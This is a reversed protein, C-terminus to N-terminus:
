MKALRKLNSFRKWRYHAGRPRDSLLHPRLLFNGGGFERHWCSPKFMVQWVSLIVFYDLIFFWFLLSYYFLFNPFCFIVKLKAKRNLIEIKTGLLYNKLFKQRVKFCDPNRDLFFEDSDEDYFRKRREVSGLLSDSFYM